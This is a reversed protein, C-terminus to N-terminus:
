KVTNAVARMERAYEKLDQINKIPHVMLSRTFTRRAESAFTRPIINLFAEESGAPRLDSGAAYCFGTRQRSNRGRFRLQDNGADDVDATLQDFDFLADAPSILREDPLPELHLRLEASSSRCSSRM